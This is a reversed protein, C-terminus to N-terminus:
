FELKWLPLKPTRGSPLSSGETSSRLARSKSLAISASAGASRAKWRNDTAYWVFEGGSEAALEDMMYECGFEATSGGLMIPLAKM